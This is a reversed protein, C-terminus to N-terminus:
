YSRPIFKKKSQLELVAIVVPYKRYKLLQGLSYTIYMQYLYM